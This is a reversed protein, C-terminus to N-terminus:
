AQEKNLQEDIWEDLASHMWTRHHEMRTNTKNFAPGATFSLEEDNTNVVVVMSNTIDAFSTLISEEKM